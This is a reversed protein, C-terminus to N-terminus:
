AARRERRLARRAKDATGAWVGQENGELAADLCEERVLCGSCVARLPEHSVGKAPFFDLEPHERCAADDHWAPRALLEALLDGPTLYDLDPEGYASM